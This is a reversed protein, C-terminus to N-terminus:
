RKMEVRWNAHYVKEKKGFEQNFGLWVIGLKLGHETRGGLGSKQAQYSLSESVRSAYM